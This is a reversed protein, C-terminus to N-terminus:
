EREATVKVQRVPGNPDNCVITILADLPTAGLKKPNLEVKLLARDGPRITKIENGLELLPQDATISYVVLPAQGTNSIEVTGTAKNGFLGFFNGQPKLKGFKLITGSIQISPAKAKEASTLKSFDDVINATIPFVISATKKGKSFVNISPDFTYHGKKKSVDPHISVLMEGVAGPKLTDSPTSITLFPPLKEWRVVVPQESGNKVWLSQTRKEGQSVITYLLRDASIGVPGVSSTFVPSPKDPEPVVEGSISLTLRKDASNSLINITKYFPGPRGKPDYAVSVEGTKGPAIPTTTWEPRTCGCSALVRKIILNETGVNKVTFVHTVPGEEEKITGFNYNRNEATIQAANQGTLVQFCVLWCVILGGTFRKQWHM